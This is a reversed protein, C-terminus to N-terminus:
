SGFPSELAGLALRATAVAFQALADARGLVGAPTKATSELAPSDVLGAAQFPNKWIAV